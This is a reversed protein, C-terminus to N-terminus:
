QGGDTSRVIRIRNETSKQHMIERYTVYVAGNPGVGIDAFQEEGHGQTLRMPTSFTQGGDTSRAFYIVNNAAQGPYRAWAVYM